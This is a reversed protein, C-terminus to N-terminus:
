FFWSCFWIYRANHHRHCTPPPPPTFDILSSLRLLHIAPSGVLSLPHLLPVQHDNFSAMVVLHKPGVVALFEVSMIDELTYFTSLWKFPPYNTLVVRYIFFVRWMALLLICFVQNFLFTNFFFILFILISNTEYFIIKWFNCKLKKKNKKNIM